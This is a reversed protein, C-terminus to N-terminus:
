ADLIWLETVILYFLGVFLGVIIFWHALVVISTHVAQKAVGIDSQPM